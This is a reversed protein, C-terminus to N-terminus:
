RKERMLNTSTHNKEFEKRVSKSLNEAFNKECPTIM